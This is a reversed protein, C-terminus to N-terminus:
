DLTNADPRKISKRIFPLSFYWKILNLDLNKLLTLQSVIKKKQSYSLTFVINKEISVLTVTM